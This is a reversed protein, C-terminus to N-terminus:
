ASKRAVIRARMDSRTASAMAAAAKTFPAM